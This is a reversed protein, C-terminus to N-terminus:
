VTIEIFEANKKFMVLFIATKCFKYTCVTETIMKAFIKENLTQMCM